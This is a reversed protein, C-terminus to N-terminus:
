VGIASHHGSPKLKILRADDIRFVITTDTPYLATM